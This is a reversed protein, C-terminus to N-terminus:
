QRKYNDAVQNKAFSSGAKQSNYDNKENAIDQLYKGQLPIKFEQDSLKKSIVVLLINMGLKNKAIDLVKQFKSSNKHPKIQEYLISYDEENLTIEAGNRNALSIKLVKYNNSAGIMALSIGTNGGTGEVLTGGSKLEGSKIKDEIIFKAARDKVSGSPNLYEAKGYIKCNLAESLSKLYILPTNGIADKVEM